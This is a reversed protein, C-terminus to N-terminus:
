PKRRHTNQASPTKSPGQQERGSDPQASDPKEARPHAQKYSAMLHEVSTGTYIQTASMDVHGLLEKIVRIGAGRDLLHTAFSHRLVHPSKRTVESCQMLYHNVIRQVARPYMRQGSAALFLAKRADADTRKGYLRTRIGLYDRLAAAAQEGFPAIRERSGKGTVQIRYNDLDVQDVNLAVLESLRIGSSYLLELLARDRVGQDNDTDVLDMMVHMDDISVSEPLRRGAKPTMLLQAPNHRTYGRKFTFRFFARIAATKRAISTNSLGDDALEGLWVRITIRQIQDPDPEGTQFERCSFEHFQELDTQYASLTHPSANREIRQYDLYKSILEKM